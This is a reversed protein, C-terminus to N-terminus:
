SVVVVQNARVTTCDNIKSAMVETFQLLPQRLLGPKLNFVVQKLENTQALRALFRCGLIKALVGILSHRKRSQQHFYNEILGAIILCM